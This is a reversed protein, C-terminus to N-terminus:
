LLSYIINVLLIFLDYEKKMEKVFQNNNIKSASCIKDDNFNLYFIYILCIYGLINYAFLIYISKIIIRKLTFFLYYEYGLIIGYFLIIHAIRIIKSRRWNNKIVICKGLNCYWFANKIFTINNYNTTNTKNSTINNKIMISNSNNNNNFFNNDEYLKDLCYFEDSVIKDILIIFIIITELILRLLTVYFSCRSKENIARKLGERSPVYNQDILLELEKKAFGDSLYILDGVTYRYREFYEPSFNRIALQTQNFNNPDETCYFYQMLKKGIIQMIFVFFRTLIECRLHAQNQNQNQNNNM